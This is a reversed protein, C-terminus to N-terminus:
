NTIAHPEVLSLTLSMDKMKPFIFIVPKGKPSILSHNTVRDNSAAPKVKYSNVRGSFCLHRLSFEPYTTKTINDTDGSGPMGQTGAM